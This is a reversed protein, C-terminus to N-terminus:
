RGRLIRSLVMNSFPFRFIRNKIKTRESIGNARKQRNKGAVNEAVEAGIGFANIGAVYLEM